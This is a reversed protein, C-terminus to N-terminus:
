LGLFSVWLVCCILMSWRDVVIPLTSEGRGGVAVIVVGFEKDITVVGGFYTLSVAVTGGASEGGAGGAAM